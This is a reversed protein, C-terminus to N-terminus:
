EPEDPNKVYVCYKIKASHISFQQHNSRFLLLQRSQCLIEFDIIRRSEIMIKPLIGLALFINLGFVFDSHTLMHDPDSETLEDDELDHPMHPYRLLLKFNVNKPETFLPILVCSTTKIKQGFSILFFLM